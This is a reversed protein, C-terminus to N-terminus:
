DEYVEEPKLRRQTKNIVSAKMLRALHKAHPSPVKYKVGIPISVAVGNVSFEAPDGLSARYVEPIFVDVLKAGTARAAKELEDKIVEEPKTNQKLTVTTNIKKESM